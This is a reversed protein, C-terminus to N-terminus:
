PGAVPARLHVRHAPRTFDATDYVDVWPGASGDAATTAPVALWRGDRTFTAPLGSDGAARSPLVAVTAGTGADVVVARTAGVDDGFTRPGIAVLWRGGPSVATVVHAALHFSADTRRTHM